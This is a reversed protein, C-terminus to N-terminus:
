LPSGRRQEGERCAEYIPWDVVYRFITARRIYICHLITAMSCEQLIDSFRPYVWRHHPGKKPKHKKAMWYATCIHFGEATGLRNNLPELDQQRIPFCIARSGQLVQHEDKPTHQGGDAGTRSKGM